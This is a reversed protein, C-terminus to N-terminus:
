KKWKVHFVPDIWAYKTGVKILNSIPIADESLPIDSDVGKWLPDGSWRKINVFDTVNKFFVILKSRDAEEIEKKGEIFEVCSIHGSAFLFDPIFVGAESAESRLGEQIAQTQLMENIYPQSYRTFRSSLSKPAKVIYKESGNELLFVESQNGGGARTLRRGKSLMVRFKYENVYHDGLGEMEEALVRIGRDVDDLIGPNNKLFIQGKESVLLAARTVQENADQYGLSSTFIRNGFMDRGNKEPKFNPLSASRDEKLQGELFRKGLKRDEGFFRDM